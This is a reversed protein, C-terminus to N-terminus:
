GARGSTLWAVWAVRSFDDETHATHRRAAVLLLAAMWRSPRLLECHSRALLQRVCVAKNSVLAPYWLYRHNVLIYLSM